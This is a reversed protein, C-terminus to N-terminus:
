LLSGDKVRATSTKCWSRTSNRVSAFGHSTGVERGGGLVGPFPPSLSFDCLKEFEQSDCSRQLHQTYLSSFLQRTRQRPAATLPCRPRRPARLWGGRRGPSGPGSEVRIASAPLVPSAWCTAGFDFVLAGHRASGGASSPSCRPLREWSGPWLGQYWPPWRLDGLVHQPASLPRCMPAPPVRPGSPWREGKIFSYSICGWTM